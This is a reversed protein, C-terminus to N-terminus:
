GANLAVLPNVQMARWAPVVSAGTAVLALLVAVGAFTLPDRAGIGFLLGEIVQASALSVVTGIAIGVGALVVGERMVMAM